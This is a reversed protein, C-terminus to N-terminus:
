KSNMNPAHVIPGAERGDPHVGKLVSKRAGIETHSFPVRKVMSDPADVDQPISNRYPGPFKESM